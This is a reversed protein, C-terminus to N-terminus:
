PHVAEYGHGLTRPCPRRARSGMAGGVLLMAHNVGSPDCDSATYIGGGYSQFSSTVAFGIVTPAQAVAQPHPPCGVHRAPPYEAPRAFNGKLSEM